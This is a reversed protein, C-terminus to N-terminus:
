LANTTRVVLGHTLVHTLLEIHFIVYFFGFFLM